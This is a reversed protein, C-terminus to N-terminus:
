RARGRRAATHSAASQGHKVIIGSGRITFDFSFAGTGDAQPIGVIGTGAISHSFATAGTGDAQPISATGAGVISYGYAVAGSGYTENITATGTGTISHGHAVAATANHDDAHAFSAALSVAQTRPALAAAEDTQYAREDVSDVSPSHCILSQFRLNLETILGDTAAVTGGFAQGIPKTTSVTGKVVTTDTLPAIVKPDDTPDRVVARLTYDATKNEADTARVTIRAAGQTSGTYTLTLAAANITPTVLGPNDNAQITFVLSGVPTQKDSFIPTLDIVTPSANEDVVVNSVSGVVLPATAASILSQIQALTLASSYIRVDDMTGDMPGYGNPNRGIWANVSASQAIAGTKALTGVLVGDLYLRMNAGDYTAAAHYWQGTVINGSSAILTTTTATKLRLRLRTGTGSAITSLMWYHDQENVGTSKSIIRDDRSSGTTFADFKVWCAITMASGPINMPGLNVYDDVGDFSLGNGTLYGSATRIAGAITGTNGKGSSDIATAGSGIAEDFKWHGVLTGPDTVTLLFTDDVFQSTNSDTMRITISSTGATGTYTLLVNPGSITPTVISPNSNAQVTPTLELASRSYAIGMDLSDNVQRIFGAMADRAAQTEGTFIAGRWGVGVEYAALNMGAANARAREDILKPSLYSSLSVDFADTIAAAAGGTIWQTTTKTLATTNDIVYADIAWIDAFDLARDVIFQNLTPDSLRGSIVHKITAM